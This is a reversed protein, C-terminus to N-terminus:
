LILLKVSAMLLVVSLALRVQKESLMRSGMLSGALGGIVVLVIWVPLEPNLALHGSQWLGALGAASNVFIFAASIGATTKMDAWSFIILLPSLIIGGGIGILGSFFGILAGTILGAWMPMPVSAKEEHGLVGSVKLFAFLLFAGLIWQYIAAPLQFWAGIYAAPVSSAMLTFFIRGNFYRESRYALFSLASVFLNLLLASARLEPPSLGALAFVALYGSAGGHGVTAYLFAVLLLALKFIWTM